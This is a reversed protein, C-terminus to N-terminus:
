LFRWWLHERRRPFVVPRTNRDLYDNVVHPSNSPRLTARAWASSWSDGRRLRRPGAPGHRRSGNRIRTSRSSQTARGCSFNRTRAMILGSTSCSKRMSAWSQSRARPISITCSACLEPFARSNAGHPGADGVSSCCRLEVACSHRCRYKEPLQLYSSLLSTDERYRLYPVWPLYTFRPFITSASAFRM